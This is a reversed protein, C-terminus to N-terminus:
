VEWQLFCTEFGLPASVNIMAVFILLYASGYPLLAMLPVSWHIHPSSSWGLWLLSLVFPPGGFCAMPLRLYEAKKSPHKASVEAAFNAYWLAVGVGIFTGPGV